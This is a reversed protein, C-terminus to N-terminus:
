GVQLQATIQERLEDLEAASKSALMQAVDTSV